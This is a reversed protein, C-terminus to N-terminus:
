LAHNVNMHDERLGWYSRRADPPEVEVTIRGAREWEAAAEPLTIYFFDYSQRAVGAAAMNVPVIGLRCYHHPLFSRARSCPFAACLPLTHQVLQMVVFLAILRTTRRLSRLLMDTELLPLTWGAQVRVAITPVVPCVRASLCILPSCTVCVITQSLGVGVTARCYIGAASM